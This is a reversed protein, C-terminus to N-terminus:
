KRTEARLHRVLNDRVRTLRQPSVEGLAGAIATEPFTALFGPRVLSPALLGSSPFDTDERTILEDFGVVHHRVQSSIGCLLWDGFPPLRALALAPRLKRQGDAQPLAALVVDGAKM